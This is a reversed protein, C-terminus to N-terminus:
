AERRLTHWEDALMSYVVHNVYQDHLFLEERMIGDQTFGLREPIARSKINGAACRIVVRHLRYIDFAYNVSARVARTMIGRGTYSRGLWYGLETSRNNWDISHHGIVGCLDGKFWIGAQFGDNEAFQRLGEQIYTRMDTLTRVDDTWMLWERLFARNSDTLEFLEETHRRELIRLDVEDDIVYRFM